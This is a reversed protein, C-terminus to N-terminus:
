RDSIGWDYNIEGDNWPEIRIMENPSHELDSVNIVWAEKNGISVYGNCIGFPIKVRSHNLEGIYIEQLQKYTSSEPRKDYLVLKINGKICVYNQTQKTHLHWGKVVGSNITALYVEGFDNINELESKKLIHKIFGRNDPITRLNTIEVGDLIM